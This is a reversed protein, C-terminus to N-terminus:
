RERETVTSEDWTGLDALARGEVKLAERAKPSSRTEKFDLLKTVLSPVKDTQSESPDGGSPACACEVPLSVM